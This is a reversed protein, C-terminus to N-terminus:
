VGSKGFDVPFRLRLAPEWSRVTGRNHSVMSSAGFGNYQAGAELVAVTTLERWRASVTVSGASIRGIWGEWLLVELDPGGRLDQLRANLARTAEELQAQSRLPLRVGLNEFAELAAAAVGGTDA